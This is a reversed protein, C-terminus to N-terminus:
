DTPLHDYLGRCHPTSTTQDALVFANANKQVGGPPPVCIGRLAMIYFRKSYGLVYHLAYACIGSQTCIVVGVSGSSAM